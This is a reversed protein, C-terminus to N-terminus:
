KSHKYLQGNDRTKEKGNKWSSRKYNGNRLKRQLCYTTDTNGWQQWTKKERQIKPQENIESEIEIVSNDNINVKAIM